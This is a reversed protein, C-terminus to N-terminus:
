FRWTCNELTGGFGIKFSIQFPNKEEQAPGTRVKLRGAWWVRQERQAVVREWGAREEVGKLGGEGNGGGTASV